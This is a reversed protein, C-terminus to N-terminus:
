ILNEQHTQYKQIYDIARQIRKPDEEFFGLARNCTNCLLGRVKGTKHNPDVALRMSGNDKGCIKCVHGQHSSMEEYDERSLGYLHKIRRDSRNKRFRIPDRLRYQASAEKDCDKCRSYFGDKAAKMKYFQDFPKSEKCVSCIKM